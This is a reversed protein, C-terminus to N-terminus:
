EKVESLPELDNQMDMEFAPSTADRQLRMPIKSMANLLNSLSHAYDSAEAIILMVGISYLSLLDLLSNKVPKQDTAAPASREGIIWIRVLTPHNDRHGM